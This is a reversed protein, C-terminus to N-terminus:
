VRLCTKKRLTELPPYLDGFDKLSMYEIINDIDGIDRKGGYGSRKDFGIDGYVMSLLM